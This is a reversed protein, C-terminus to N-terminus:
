VYQMNSLICCSVNKSLDKMIFEVVTILMRLSAFLSTNAAYFATRVQSTLNQNVRSEEAPPASPATSTKLRDVM